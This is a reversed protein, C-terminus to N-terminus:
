LTYSFEATINQFLFCSREAAKQISATLEKGMFLLLLSFAYRLSVGKTINEERKGCGIGGSVSVSAVGEVSELQPKITNNVYDTIESKDMGEVGVAAVMIPIMDPNVQM